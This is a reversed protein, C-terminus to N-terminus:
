HEILEEAGYCTKNDKNKYFNYPCSKYYLKYENNVYLITFYGNTIEYERDLKLVIGEFIPKNIEFIINLTKEKVINKDLFLEIKM